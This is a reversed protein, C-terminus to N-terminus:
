HRLKKFREPLVAVLGARGYESVLQGGKAMLREVTQLKGQGGGGLHFGGTGGQALFQSVFPPLELEESRLQGEKRAFLRGPRQVGVQRRQARRLGRQLCLDGGGELGFWLQASKSRGAQEVGPSGPQLIPQAAFEGLQGMGPLFHEQRWEVVGPGVEGSGQLSKVIAQGRVYLGGQAHRERLALKHELDV